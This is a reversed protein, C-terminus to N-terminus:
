GSRIKVADPTVSLNLESFGDLKYPAKDQLKFGGETIVREGESLGDVVEVYGYKRAGIQIIRRHALGDEGAIFVFSESGVQIFASEPIVLAQRVDTVIKVTM